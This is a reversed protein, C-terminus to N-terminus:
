VPEGPKRMLRRVMPSIRKSAQRVKYFFRTRADFSGEMDVTAFIPNPRLRKAIQQLVMAPSRLIVHMPMLRVGKKWEREVARILWPPLDRAKEALPTDDIRLGLFHHALGVTCTLWRRRVPSVVGLFRDWDFDAPRNEIAYYIDWLRAKDEGGDTLWHVCLVRLHDEPRLVRIAGGPLEWERSNAFLDDWAVTDLHRLERHLDIALGESAHEVSIAYARDLDAAAVALDMDVAVRPETEPYYRGAAIGKILVPEIGQERLLEFARVARTQAAKVQLLNWRFDDTKITEPATESVLLSYCFILNGANRCHVETRSAAFFEPIPHTCNCADAPSVNAFFSATSVSHGM